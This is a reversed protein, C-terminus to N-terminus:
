YCLVDECFDGFGRRAGEVFGHLPNTASLRVRERVPTTTNSGQHSDEVDTIMAGMTIDM